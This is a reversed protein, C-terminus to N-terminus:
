SDLSNISGFIFFILFSVTFGALGLWQQFAWGGWLALCSGLEKWGARIFYGLVPFPFIRQIGKGLPIHVPEFLDTSFTCTSIACANLLCLKWLNIGSWMWTLSIWSVSSCLGARKPQSIGKQRELSLVPLLDEPLMGWGGKEIGAKIDDWFLLPPLLCCDPPCRWQVEWWSLSVMDLGLM